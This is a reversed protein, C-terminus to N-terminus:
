PQEQEDKVRWVHFAETPRVAQRALSAADHSNLLVLDSPTIEYSAVKEYRHMVATWDNFFSDTARAHPGEILLTTLTRGGAVTPQRPLDSVPRSLIGLRSLHFFVAPEGFTYVVTDASSAICDARIREALRAMSTRPRFAAVNGSNLRGERAVVFASMALLLLMVVNHQLM